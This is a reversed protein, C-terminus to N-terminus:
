AYNMLEEQVLLAGEIHLLLTSKGSSNTGTASCAAPVLALKERKYEDHYVYSLSEVELM